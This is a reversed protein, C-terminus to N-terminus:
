FNEGIYNTKFPREVLKKSNNNVAYIGLGIALSFIFKDVSQKRMPLDFMGFLGVTCGAM